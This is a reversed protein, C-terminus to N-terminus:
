KDDKREKKMEALLFQRTHEAMKLLEVQANVVKGKDLFDSIKAEFHIMDHFLEAIKRNYKNSM